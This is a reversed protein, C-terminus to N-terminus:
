LLSRDNKVHFRLKRMVIAFVTCERPSLLSLSLNLSFNRLYGFDKLRDIASYEFFFNVSEICIYYMKVVLTRVCSYLSLKSISVAHKDGIFIYM